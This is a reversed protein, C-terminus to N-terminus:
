KGATAASDAKARELDFHAHLRKGGSLAFSWDETHHDPDIMTFAFRDLYLPQRSGSIGALEFDVSKRDASTRAVLRPRNGADCYHVLTLRDGEVYILTPEPMGGPAIEHVLLNGRSAVRMTVRMSGDLEPTPPDTKVVGNWTGALAKLAEFSAQAASKGPAARALSREQALSVRGPVLMAACLLVLRLSRM